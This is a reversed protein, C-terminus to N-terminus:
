LVNLVDKCRQMQSSFALSALSALATLRSRTAALPSILPTLSWSRTVYLTCNHTIFLLSPHPDDNSFLFHFISSPSPLADHMTCKTRTTCQRAYSQSQPFIGLTWCSLCLSLRFFSFFLVDLTGASRFPGDYVAIYERKNIRQDSHSM